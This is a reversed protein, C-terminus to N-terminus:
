FGRDALWATLCRERKQLDQNGSWKGLRLEGALCGDTMFLVRESRAAIKPDHTVLLIATGETNVSSFLEMVDRAASSNLAGTPEDGFLIAPRNILARCISARQLQGGSVQTIDKEGIMLIGAREMLFAAYRNIRQRSVKKNLYAPLVINDFITLNKLFHNQQFIFGMKELRLGALGRETLSTLSHGCVTIQGSTPRDMGSINYLLTSKGSGSAGMVSLFEGERVTLSCDRLVQQTNNKGIIYEKNLARAEILNAM